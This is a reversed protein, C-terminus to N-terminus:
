AEREEGRPRAAPPLGRDAHVRRRRRRARAVDRGACGGAAVADRRCPRGVSSGMLGVGGGPRPNFCFRHPRRSRRSLLRRGTLRRWRRPPAADRHTTQHRRSALRTRTMAMTAHRRRPQLLPPQAASASVGVVAVAPARSAGRSVCRSSPRARPRTTTTLARRRWRCSGAASAPVPASRTLLSSGSAAVRM